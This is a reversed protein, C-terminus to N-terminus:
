ILVAPMPNIPRASVDDGQDIEDCDESFRDFDYQNRTYWDIDAAYEPYELNLLDIESIYPESEPDLEPTEQDTDNDAVYDEEELASLRHPPRTMKTRKLRDAAKANQKLENLITQLSRYNVNKMGLGYLQWTMRGLSRRSRRSLKKTHEAHEAAKIYAQILSKNDFILARDILGCTHKPTLGCATLMRWLSSREKQESTSLESKNSLELYRNAKDKIKM